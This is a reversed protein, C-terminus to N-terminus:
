PNKKSYLFSNYPNKIFFSFVVTFVGGILGIPLSDINKHKRLIIIYISACIASLLAFIIGLYKGVYINDILMISVGFFASSIIVIKKLSIMENFFIYSLIATIFPITSSIFLANGITTNAFAHIYFIIGIMYFIGGIFGYIGSMKVINLFKFKYKLFLIISFTISFSLSRYFLIQWPDGSSISRMILGGFSIGIVGFILFIISLKRKSM